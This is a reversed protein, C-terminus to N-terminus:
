KIQSKHLLSPLKKLVAKNKPHQSVLNSYKDYLEMYKNLLERINDNPSKNDNLELEKKTWVRGNKCIIMMQKFAEPSLEKSANSGLQIKFGTIEYKGNFKCTINLCDSNIYTSSEGCTKSWKYYQMSFKIGNIYFSDEKTELINKNGAYKNKANKASKKDFKELNAKFCLYDCDQIKPFEFLRNLRSGCETCHAAEFSYEKGCEKNECKFVDKLPKGCDKCCKADDENIGNCRCVISM